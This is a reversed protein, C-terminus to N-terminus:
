ARGATASLTLAEVGLSKLAREWKTTSEASFVIGPTADCSLWGNRLIEQEIQGPGWGSYGLALLAKDPGNGNALDELIELTATMGFAENVHLTGGEAVYDASHLVFGRGGEVPGGFHVQVEACGTGPEIGLQDLLGRFGPQPMPKNVILGMAGEPSHACILILSRDFRPDGMGPMAILFKGTLNMSDTQASM